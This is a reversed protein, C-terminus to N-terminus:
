RRCCARRRRGIPCTAGASRAAAFSSRPSCATSRRPCARARCTASRSSSRTPVRAVPFRSLRRGARAGSAFSAASRSAEDAEAPRDPLLAAQVRQAFRLEKELRVENARVTRVAARERDGGGGPRRAADPDRRRAQHVRRAGPERSRLRRRLSGQAADPDGARLARGAVLPIYRPDQSVDAVLVPEKHLAAYGVLGEGLRVRPVDVKEGYQVACKM